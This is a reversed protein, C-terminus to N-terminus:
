ESTLIHEHNEQTLRWKSAQNFASVLYERSKRTTLFVFHAERAYTGPRLPVMKPGLPLGRHIAGTLVRKNSAMTPPWTKIEKTTHQNLILVQPNLSLLINLAPYLTFKSQVNKKSQNLNYMIYSLVSQKIDGCM